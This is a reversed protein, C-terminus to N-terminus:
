IGLYIVIVFVLIFIHGTSINHFVLQILQWLIFIQIFKFIFLAGREFINRNNPNGGQGPVGLGGVNDFDDNGANNGGNNAGNNNNRDLQLLNRLNVLNQLSFKLNKGNVEKLQVLETQLTYYKPHLIPQFPSQSMAKMLPTMKSAYYKEFELTKNDQQRYFDLM